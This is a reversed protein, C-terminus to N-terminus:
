QSEMRRRSGRGSYRGGRCLYWGGPGQPNSAYFRRAKGARLGRCNPCKRSTFGQGSAALLAYGLGPNVWMPALVLGLAKVWPLGQCRNLPGDEEKEDEDKTRPQSRPPKALIFSPYISFASLIQEGPLMKM